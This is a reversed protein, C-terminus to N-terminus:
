ELCLPPFDGLDGFLPAEIMTVLDGLTEEDFDGLDPTLKALM